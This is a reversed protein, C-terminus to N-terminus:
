QREFRVVVCGPEELEVRGSECSTLAVSRTCIGTTSFGAAFMGFPGFGNGMRPKEKITGHLEARTLVYGVLIVPVRTGPLPTSLAELHRRLESSVVSVYLTNPWEIGGTRLASPCSECAARLDGTKVDLTGAVSILKDRLKKAHLM